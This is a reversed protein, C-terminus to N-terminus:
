TVNYVLCAWEGEQTLEPDPLQRDWKAQYANNFTEQVEELQHFPIGSLILTSAEGLTQVIGPALRVLINALINAVVVNYRKSIKEIATTSAQINTLNNITANELTVEIAKPDVDIADISKAGLIGAGISLIGSGCGVDLLDLVPSNNMVQELAELCLATTAHHGTGFAMGPDIIITHADDPTVFDKEWSPVVWFNKGLQRPTFFAKWMTQWSNDDKHAIELKHIASAGLEQHSREVIGQIQEPTREPAFSAILLSHGVQIDLELTEPPNGHIDPLRPLPIEDSITQVGLAGSEILIAGMEDSLDEAFEFTAEWWTTSETM